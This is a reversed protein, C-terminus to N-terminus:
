LGGKGAEVIELIAWFSGMWLHASAGCVACRIRELEAEECSREFSSWRGCVECVAIGSLRKVRVHVPRASM